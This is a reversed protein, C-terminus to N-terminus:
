WKIPAFLCVSVISPVGMCFIIHWQWCQCTAVRPKNIGLVAYIALGTQNLSATYQFSINSFLCVELQFLSEKLSIGHIPVLVPNFYLMWLWWQMRPSSIRQGAPIIWLIWKFWIFHMLCQPVAARDHVNDTWQVDHHLIFWHVWKHFLSSLFLSHALGCKNPGLWPRQKHRTLTLESHERQNLIYWLDCQIM